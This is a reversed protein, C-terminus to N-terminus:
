DSVVVFLGFYLLMKLRILIGMIVNGKVVCILLSGM